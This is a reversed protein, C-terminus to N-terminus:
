AAIQQESVVPGAQIVFVPVPREVGKLEVGGLATCRCSPHASQHIDISMAIQGHRAFSCLRRAVNVTSGVVGYQRRSGCGVRATVVDGEHLGIGFSLAPLSRIALAGNLADLRGFMALAAGVARRSPNPAANHEFVAFIEDGTYQVVIGGASVVSPVLVHYYVDLLEHVQAPALREAVPTFDRVDCFLAAVHKPVPGGRRAGRRMGYARAGACLTNTLM